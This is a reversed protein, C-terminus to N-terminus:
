QSTTSRLRDIEPGTASQAARSEELLERYRQTEQVVGTLHQHLGAYEQSHQQTVDESHLAHLSLETGFVHVQDDRRWVETTVETFLVEQQNERSSGRRRKSPGKFGGKM